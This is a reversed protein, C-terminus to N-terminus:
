VGALEEVNDLGTPRRTLHGSLAAQLLAAECTPINATSQTSSSQLRNGGARMQDFDETLKKQHTISPVWFPMTRLQNMYIAAVNTSAKVSSRIAQRLQPGQFWMGAFEPLVGADFRLRMINENFTWGEIDATAVATKGVLDGSNKSNFLM